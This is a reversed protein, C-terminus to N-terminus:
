EDTKEELAARQEAWGCTCPESDGFEYGTYEECTGLHEGHKLLLSELDSIRAIVLKSQSPERVSRTTLGLALDVLSLETQKEDAENLNVEYCHKWGYALAVAKDREREAAQLKDQLGEIKDCCEDISYGLSRVSAARRESKEESRVSQDIAQDMTSQMSALAESAEGRCILCEDSGPCASEGHLTSLKEELDSIRADKRAHEIHHRINARDVHQYAEVQRDNRRQLADREGEAAQLKEEAEELKRHLAFAEDLFCQVDEPANGGFERSVHQGKMARSALALMRHMHRNSREAKEEAERREDRCQMLANALSQNGEEAERLQTRLSDIVDEPEPGPYEHPHPPHSM